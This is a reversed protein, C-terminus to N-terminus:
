VIGPPCQDPRNEPCVLITVKNGVRKRITQGLNSIICCTRIYLSPEHKYGTCDAMCYSGEIEDIVVIMLILLLLEVRPLIFMM